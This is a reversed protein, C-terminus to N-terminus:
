KLISYGARSYRPTNRVKITAINDTMEPQHQKKGQDLVVAAVNGLTDRYTFAIAGSKIHTFDQTRQETVWSAGGDRV